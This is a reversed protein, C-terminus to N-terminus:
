WPMPPYRHGGLEFFVVAVQDDVEPHLERHEAHCGGGKAREGGAAEVSAVRESYRASFRQPELGARAIRGAVTLYGYEDAIMELAARAIALESM